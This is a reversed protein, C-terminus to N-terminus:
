RRRRNTTFGGTFYVLFAAVGLTVYLKPPKLWEAIVTNFQATLPTPTSSGPVFTPLNMPPVAIEPILNGNQDYTPM